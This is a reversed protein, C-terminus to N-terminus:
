AKERAALQNVGEMRWDLLESAYVEVMELCMEARVYRISASMRNRNSKASKWM